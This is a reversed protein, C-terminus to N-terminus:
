SCRLVTHTVSNCIYLAGNRYKGPAGLESFGGRTMVRQSAWGLKNECLQGTETFVYNVEMMKNVKLWQLHSQLRAVKNCRCLTQSLTSIHLMDDQCIRKLLTNIRKERKDHKTTVPSHKWPQSSGRRARMTSSGVATTLGSIVVMSKFEKRNWLGTADAWAWLLPLKSQLRVNPQSPM